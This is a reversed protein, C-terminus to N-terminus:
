ELTGFKVDITKRLRELIEDESLIPYYKRHHGGKGTEDDWDLIGLDVMDNAFFIVSTRSITQGKPLNKNAYTWLEKSGTPKNLKWLCELILQQYDKFIMSIGDKSLDVKMSLLKGEM